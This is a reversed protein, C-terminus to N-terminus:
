LGRANEPNECLIDRLNCLASSLLRDRSDAPPHIPFNLRCKPCRLVVFLCPISRRLALLPRIFRPIANGNALLITSAKLSFVPDLFISHAPERRLIRSFIPSLSRRAVPGFLSLIM